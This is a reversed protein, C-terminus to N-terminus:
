SFESCEPFNRSGRSIPPAFQQRSLKQAIFDAQKIFVTSAELAIPAQQTGGTALRRIHSSPNPSQNGGRGGRQDENDEEQPGTEAEWEDKLDQPLIPALRQVM